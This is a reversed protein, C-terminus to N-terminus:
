SIFTYNRKPIYNATSILADVRTLVSTKDKDPHQAPRWDTQISFLMAVVEVRASAKHQIMLQNKLTEKFAKWRSRLDVEGKRSFHNPFLHITNGFIFSRPILKLSRTWEATNPTWYPFSAVLCPKLMTLDRQGILQQLHMQLVHQVYASKTSTM